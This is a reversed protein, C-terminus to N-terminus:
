LIPIQYSTTIKAYVQYGADFFSVSQSRRFFFIDPGLHSFYPSFQTVLLKM